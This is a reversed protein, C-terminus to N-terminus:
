IPEAVKVIVDRFANTLNLVSGNLVQKEAM